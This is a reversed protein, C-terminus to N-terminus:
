PIWLWVSKQKALRPHKPRRVTPAGVAAAKHAGIIDSVRRFNSATGILHISTTWIRGIPPSFVALGYKQGQYFLYGSGNGHAAKAFTLHIRGEADSQASASISMATLAGLAIAFPLMWVVERRSMLKRAKYDM